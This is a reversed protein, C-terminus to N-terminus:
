WPDTNTPEEEETEPPLDEEQGLQDDNIHESFRQDNSEDAQLGGSKVLVTALNCLRNGFEGFRGKPRYELCRNCRFGQGTAVVFHGKANIDSTIQNGTVDAPIAAPIHALRPQEM